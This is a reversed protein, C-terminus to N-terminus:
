LVINEVCFYKDLGMSRALQKELLIEASLQLM